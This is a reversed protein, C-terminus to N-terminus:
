ALAASLSEDTQVFADHVAQVVDAMNALAKNTADRHKHWKGMLDGYAGEVPGCMSFDCDLAVNENCNLGRLRRVFGELVEPVVQIDGGAM